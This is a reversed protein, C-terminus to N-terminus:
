KSYIIAEICDAVAEDSESKEVEMRRYIEDIISPLTMLARCSDDPFDDRTLFKYIKKKIFIEYSSAMINPKSEVMKSQTFRDYEYKVKQRFGRVMIM